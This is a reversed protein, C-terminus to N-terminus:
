YPIPWGLVESTAILIAAVIAGFAVWEDATM